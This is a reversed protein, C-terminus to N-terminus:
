LLANLEVAQRATSANTALYPADPSIAALHMSAAWRASQTGRRLVDICYAPDSASQGSLLRTGSPYSSGHQQWWAKMYDPYGGIESTFTHKALPEGNPRSQEM